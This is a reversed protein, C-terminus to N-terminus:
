AIGREALLENVRDEAAWAADLAERLAKMAEEVSPIDVDDPKSIYGALNLNGGQERIEDITVVHCRGEEDAFKEYAEFITKVHEHELTNQNRGKRYLDSADVLLM